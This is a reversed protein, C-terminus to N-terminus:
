LNGSTVLAFAYLFNDCCERITGYCAEFDKLTGGFPDFIETRGNGNFRGLSVVKGAAEPYTRALAELHRAEMVLVIDAKAVLERKLPTTTHGNLSVGDRQAVLRALPHAAKGPSTELGASSVEVSRNQETLRMKMYSEALPSRCINGKCVILVRRVPARLLEQSVDSGLAGYSLRRPRSGGPGEDPGCLTGGGSRGQQRRRMKAQLNHTLDAVFQRLEHLFPGPDGSRLMEYRMGPQVFRCFEALSRLRSPYGAPLHLAEDSKWLRVLLQDLDGLLWRSRAGIRYQNATPRMPQGTAMQYLLLPFNVGADIALQVSGWFRGNVEMLVPTETREDWKFEVMAVGHWRVHRLLRLAYDTMPESLAISQRLVSVGGCPPKERLREHAFLAVPTGHDMLAFLGRGRGEVREQIMSPRWLYDLERYLQRLESETSAIHM